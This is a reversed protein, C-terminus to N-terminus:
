PRGCVFPLIDREQTYNNLILLTKQPHLYIYMQKIFSTIFNLYLNSTKYVFVSVDCNDQNILILKITFDNGMGLALCRTMHDQAAKM